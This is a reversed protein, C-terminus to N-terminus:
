APAPLSPPVARGPVATLPKLSEVGVTVVVTDADLRIRARLGSAFALSMLAPNHTRSRLVVENAGQGRALRAASSLLRTGLGRRQWGDEVLISVEAVGAECTSITALAVVEEGVTAVLAGGGTMLLRRAFRDDVRALPSAYRRYVTESSCRLHMRMLAATDHFDAQRIVPHVAASPTPGSPGEDEPTYADEGHVLEAAVEAFAIARARETATFPERRRLVVPLPGIEVVLTDRDAPAPAVGARPEPDADLLRTLVETLRAPDHAVRRLGHLYHIPGDTLAQETCPAVSVHTSGGAGDILQVVDDRGWLDPARLVLEDTVGGVGPFIQLGLINVGQEGCSRALAALSGPRDSM